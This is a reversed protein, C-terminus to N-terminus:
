LRSLDINMITYTSVFVAMPKWGNGIMKRVIRILDARTPGCEITYETDVCDLGLVKNNFM